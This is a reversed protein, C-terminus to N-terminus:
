QDHGEPSAAHIKDAKITNTSVTTAAQGIKMKLKREMAVRALITQM